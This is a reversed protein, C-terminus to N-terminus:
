GVWTKKKVEEFRQPEEREFGAERRLGWTKNVAIECDVTLFSKNLCPSQTQEEFMCARNYISGRGEVKRM